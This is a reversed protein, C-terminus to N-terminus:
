VSAIKHQLLHLFLANRHLSCVKNLEFYKLSIELVLKTTKAQYSLLKQINQYFTISQLKVILLLRIIMSVSGRFTLHPLFYNQTSQRHIHLNPSHNILSFPISSSQILVQSNPATMFLFLNQQPLFLRLAGHHLPEINFSLQIYLM